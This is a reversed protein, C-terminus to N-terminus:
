RIIRFHLHMQHQFIALEIERLAFGVDREAHARRHLGIQDLALQEGHVIVDVRRWRIERADALRSLKSSSTAGDSM